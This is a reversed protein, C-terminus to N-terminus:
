QNRQNLAQILGDIGNQNIQQAFQNRYNEILWIGEVNMDYIKWGQPTKELRYDVGVPQGNPQSILTRVVVDDSKPDGRFPLATVTTGSTVRTLAGSYTRVLTGRFADALATRQQETAQRWYRGAALRTTKQFNVYPLIHENVVQNIRATNGAKVAGDAKLVDLAENAAGLVFQDPAGQADPKAQVAASAALGLLGAFALRQLLPFFSFSM